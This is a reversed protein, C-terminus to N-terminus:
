TSNEEWGLMEKEKAKQCEPLNHQRWPVMVVLAEEVTTDESDTVSKYRWQHKEINVGAESGDIYRVNLYGENRGGLKGKGFFRQRLGNVRM